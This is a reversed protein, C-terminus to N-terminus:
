RPARRIRCLAGARPGDTGHNRVMSYQRRVEPVPHRLRPAVKIRPANLVSLGKQVAFGDSDQIRWLVAKCRREFRNPPSVKSCLRLVDFADRRTRHRTACPRRLGDIHWDRIAPSQNSRCRRNGKCHRYRVRSERLSCLDGGASGRIGGRRLIDRARERTIEDRGCIVIKGSIDALFAGPCQQVPGADRDASRAVLRDLNRDSRERGEGAGRLGRHQTAAFSKVDHVGGEDVTHRAMNEIEVVRMQLRDNMGRTRHRGCDERQRLHLRNRAFIKEIREHQAHLRFAPDAVRDVGVM